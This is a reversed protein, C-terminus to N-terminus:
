VRIYHEDLYLYFHRVDLYNTLPTPVTGNNTGGTNMHALETLVREVPVGMEKLTERISPM